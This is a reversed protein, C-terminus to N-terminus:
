REGHRRLTSASKKKLVEVEVIGRISQHWEHQQCTESNEKESICGWQLYPLCDKSLPNCIQEGRQNSSRNKCFDNLINLKEIQPHVWKNCSNPNENASILVLQSMAQSSKEVVSWLQMLQFLENSFDDTTLLLKRDLPNTSFLVIVAQPTTYHLVAVRSSCPTHRVRPQAETELKVATISTGMELTSQSIPHHQLCFSSITNGQLSSIYSRMRKISHM